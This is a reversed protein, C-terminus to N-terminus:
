GRNLPVIRTANTPAMAAPAANTSALSMVQPQFDIHQIAIYCCGSQTFLSGQGNVERNIEM